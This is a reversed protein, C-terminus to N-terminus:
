GFIRSLENVYWGWWRQIGVQILLAILLQLFIDGYGPRLERFWCVIWLAAVSALLNILLGIRRRHRRLTGFVRESILTPDFRSRPAQIVLLLFLVPLTVVAFLVLTVLAMTGVQVWFSGSTLLSKAAPYVIRALVLGLAVSTVFWFALWREVETWRRPPPPAGPPAPVGRRWTGQAQVWPTGCRRCVANPPPPVPRMGLWLDCRACFYYTGNPLAELNIDSRLTPYRFM